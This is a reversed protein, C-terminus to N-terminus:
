VVDTHGLLMLTEQDGGDLRAVVNGREPESETVSSSIGERELVGAIYNTCLTENGPPNTTDFRVLDQLFGTVEDKVQNWDVSSM